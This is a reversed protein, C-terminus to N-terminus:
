TPLYKNQAMEREKQETGRVTYRNGEERQHAM